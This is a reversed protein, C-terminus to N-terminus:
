KSCEVCTTSEKVCLKRSDDYYKNDACDRIYNKGFTCRAYQRCNWPVPYYVIISFHSCKTIQETCQTPTEPEPDVTETETTTEETTTSDRTTQDETTTSVCLVCNANDPWDCIKYTPNFHLGAGCSSILM